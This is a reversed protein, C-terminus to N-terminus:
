YYTPHHTSLVRLQTQAYSLVEPSIQSPYGVVREFSIIAQSYQGNHMASIGLGLWWKANDPWFDVLKQYTLQSRDYQGTLDYLEALMGLCDASLSQHQSFDELVAMAEKNKNQFSLLQAQLIVKDQANITSPLQNFLTNAREVQGAKALDAITSLQTNIRDTEEHTETLSYDGVGSSPPGAQLASLPVTVSKAGATAAGPVATAGQGMSPKTMASGSRGRGMSPTTATSGGSNKAVLSSLANGQLDPPPPLTANATPNLPPNALQVTAPVTAPAVTPWMGSQAGGAAHSMMGGKIKASLQERVMNAVHNRFLTQGYHYGVVSACVLVVILVLWLYWRHHIDGARIPRENLWPTPQPTSKRSLNRLVENILSM